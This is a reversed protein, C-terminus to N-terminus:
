ICSQKHGDRLERSLWDALTDVHPSKLITMHNGPGHWPMVGPAWHRWGEINKEYQRRNAEDDLKPDNVLAMRVPGPYPEEPKYSTRLAAAFTLM